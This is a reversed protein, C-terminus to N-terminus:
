YNSQLMVVFLCALYDLPTVRPTAPLAGLRFPRRTAGILGQAVWKPSLRSRSSDPAAALRQRSPDRTGVDTVIGTEDGM